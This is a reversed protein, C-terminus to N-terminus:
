EYRNNIESAIKTFIKEVNYNNKASAEVYTIGYKKSFSIVEEIVVDRESVLDCKNGVLLVSLTNTM